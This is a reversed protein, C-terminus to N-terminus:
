KDLWVDEFRWGNFLSNIMVTLGKVQPQWCTAFRGYFIIPQVDDEALKREINWVLQRRKEAGPEMSQEDIMKDLEPSCYGTYNHAADCVYNEYFTQDPEDLSNESISLGVAYDKRMIKPYWQPTEVLQLEADVYVEKLQSLLVVAPDRDVPRNRVSLPTALRKDPGYGLRKMIQRAQERNKQVDPGYGPLTKLTESPMGWIGEPPPLMAGGIEGQGETLIEIFAKRDLSLTLARRLDPNDFPSAARNLIVARAANDPVLDCIAQPAQSKVDKLLPPQLTILDFKGAIFGLMRTSVNPIIVHEIADLYPRDNKWYHPNRVVRIVENPKFEVFKFPGTGVPHSRM